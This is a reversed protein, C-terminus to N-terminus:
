TAGEAVPPRAWRFRMARNGAGTSHIAVCGDNKLEHLTRLLTGRDLEYGIAKYVDSYIFPDPLQPLARLVDNYLQGPGLRPRAPAPQPSPPGPAAPFLGGPGEGSMMRWVADLAQLQYQHATEVMELLARRQEVLRRKQEEYDERTM